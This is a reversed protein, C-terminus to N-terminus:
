NLRRCDVEALLAGDFDWTQKLVLCQLNNIGETPDDVLIQDLLEVAADWRVRLRHESTPNVLVTFVQTAYASCESEVQLLPNDITLQRSYVGSYNPDPYILETPNEDFTCARIKLTITDTSVGVNHLNVSYERPSAQLGEINTQSSNLLTVSEIYLVNGQFPLTDLNVYETALTVADVTAVEINPKPKINRQKILISSYATNFEQLGAASLIMDHDTWTAVPVGAIFNYPRVRLQDLKDVYITGPLAEAIEQLVELLNTALSYCFPPNSVRVTDIVMDLTLKTDISNIYDELTLNQAPLFKPAKISAYSALRDTGGLTFEPASTDVKWDLTRFVGLPIMEFSDTTIELGVYAKLRLDPVMLGYFPSDVNSIAFRRLKNHLVVTIDNASIKGLARGPSVVEETGSMTIIDQMGFCVKQIIGAEYVTAYEDSRTAIKTITFVIEDIGIFATNTHSWMYNTNATSTLTTYGGAHHVRCTFDTPYNWESGVLWIHSSDIEPYVITIVEPAALEGNGDAEQTGKWGLAPGTITAPIHTGEYAIQSERFIGDIIDSASYGIQTSSAVVSTALPYDVDGAFDVMILATERRQSAKIAIKYAPSCALM